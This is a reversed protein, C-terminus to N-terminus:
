EPRRVSSKADTIDAMVLEPEGLGLRQFDEQLNRLSELDVETVSMAQGKGGPSWESGFKEQGGGIEVTGGDTGDEGRLDCAGADVHRDGGSSAARLASVAVAPGAIDAGWTRAGM